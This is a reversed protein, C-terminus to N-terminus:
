LDPKMKGYGKKRDVELWFGLGTNRRMKLKMLKKAQETKVRTHHALDFIGSVRKEV